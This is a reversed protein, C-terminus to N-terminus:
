VFKYGRVTISYFRIGNVERYLYRKITELGYFGADKTISIFKDERLTGSICEGWLQKDAQMDLPVDRDSIIDSICFRGDDKLIRYIEKFM